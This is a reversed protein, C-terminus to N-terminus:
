TFATMRVRIQLETTYVVVQYIGRFRKEPILRAQIDLRSPLFYAWHKSEKANGNEIVTEKYPIGVVPGTLTQPGAWKSNIERIAEGEREQRENVLNQIFVTPILLLLILIGILFSKLIVKNRSWFTTLMNEMNQYNLPKKMEPHRLM